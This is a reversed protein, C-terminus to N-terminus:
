EENISAIVGQLSEDLWIRGKDVQAVYRELVPAAAPVAASLRPANLYVLALGAAVLGIIGFGLRFGRRQTKETSAMAEAAAPELSSNIEEIDPLLDKRTTEEGTVQASTPPALEGKMRAMRRRIEEARQTEPDPRTPEEIGLDEQAEITEAVREAVAEPVPEPRAERALAAEERLIASAEPSVTPRRPAARLVDENQPTDPDATEAQVPPAEPQAAEAPAEAASAGSTEPASAPQPEPPPAAAAPPMAVGSARAESAGPTELWTHSCNSCQVDRGEDPIVGDPVEYQAACNPCILRMTNSGLRNPLITRSKESWLRAVVRRFDLTRCPM